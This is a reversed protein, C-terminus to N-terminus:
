EVIEASEIILYWQLIESDNLKLIGKITVKQNNHQLINKPNCNNNFNLEVIFDTNSEIPIGCGFSIPKENSKLIFYDDLLDISFIYGEISIQKGDLAILSNNFIPIQVNAMYATDWKEVFTISDFDKWTLTTQAITSNQKFLSLVVLTIICFFHKNPKNM